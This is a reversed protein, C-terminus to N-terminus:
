TNNDVVIQYINCLHGRATQGHMCKRLPTIFVPFIQRTQYFVAAIDVHDICTTVVKLSICKIHIKMNLQHLKYHQM